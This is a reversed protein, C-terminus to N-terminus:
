LLTVRNRGNQKSQYLAKDVRNIFSEVTEGKQYETVGFSATQKGTHEFDYDAIIKRLQEALNMAQDGTRNTLIIFEEGGWRGFRDEKSLQSKILASLEALAIDGIRHGYTDNIRKFHDLDFFVVSLPSIESVHKMEIGEFWRDIQHRNAIGTLPDQYAYKEVSEFDAAMRFLYRGIFIILVYFLYAIFFMILQIRNEHGIHPFYLLGISLNILFVILSFILGLKEKLILFFILIIAPTWIVSIGLGGDLGSVMYYYVSTFVMGVHSFSLVALTIYEVGRIMRRKYILWFAIGYWVILVRTITMTFPDVVRYLTYLYYATLALQILVIM